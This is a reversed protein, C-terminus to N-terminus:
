ARLEVIEVWNPNTGVAQEGRLQIGGRQSRPIQLGQGQEADGAGAAFVLVGGVIEVGALKARRSSYLGGPFNALCDRRRLTDLFTRAGYLLISALPWANYTTAVRGM